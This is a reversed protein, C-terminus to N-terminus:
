PNQDSFQESGHLICYFSRTRLGNAEKAREFRHESVTSFRLFMSFGCFDEIQDNWYRSGYKKHHNKSSNEVIKFSKQMWPTLLAVSPVVFILANELMKAHWDAAHTKQWQLVPFRIKQISEKAFKIANKTLNPHNKHMTFFSSRPSRITVPFTLIRRKKFRKKKQVPFSANDM